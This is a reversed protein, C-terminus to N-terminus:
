DSTAYYKGEIESIKADYDTKNVSDNVVSIENMVKSIKTNLVAATM